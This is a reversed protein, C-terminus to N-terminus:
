IDAGIARGVRAESGRQPVLLVAAPLRLRYRASLRERLVGSHRPASLAM